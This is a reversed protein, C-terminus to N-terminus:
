SRHPVTIALLLDAEPEFNEAEFVFHTPSVKELRGNWCLTLLSEPDDKDLTLRFRGIPGAWNNGTRLIYGIEVVLPAMPADALRRLAQWERDSACFTERFRAEGEADAFLFSQGAIPRYSHRVSVPEGPPLTLRWLYTVETRWAPEAFGRGRDAYLGEAELRAVLAEAEENSLGAFIGAMPEAQVGFPALRTGAIGLEALRATVDRGDDLAYVRVHEEAAPAPRGDVRTEFDIFGLEAPRDTGVQYTRAADVPPLPFAILAEVPAATVNEFVYDVSIRAASVFLDESRLAIADTQELVLGGASLRALSDNAKAPLFLLALGLLVAAAAAWRWSGRM